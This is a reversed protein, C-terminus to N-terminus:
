NQKTMALNDRGGNQKRMACFVFHGARVPCEKSNKCQVLTVSCHPTTGGSLKQAFSADLEV